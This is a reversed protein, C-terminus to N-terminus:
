EDSVLAHPLRNEIIDGSGYKTVFEGLHGLVRTLFEMQKNIKPSLATIRSNQSPYPFGLGYLHVM